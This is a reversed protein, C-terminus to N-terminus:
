GIELAGVHVVADNVICSVPPTLTKCHTHTHTHTHTYMCFASMVYGNILLQCVATVDFYFTCLM